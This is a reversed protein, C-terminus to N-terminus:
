DCTNGAKFREAVELLYLYIKEREEVTLDKVIGTAYKRLKSYSIGTAEALSHKNLDKVAERM